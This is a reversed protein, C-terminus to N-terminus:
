PWVFLATRRKCKNCAFFSVKSTVTPDDTNFHISLKRQCRPCLGKSIYLEQRINNRKEKYLRWKYRQDFVSAKPLIPEKYYDLSVNDEYTELKFLKYMFAYVGFIILVVFITQIIM